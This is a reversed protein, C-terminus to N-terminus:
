HAAALRLRALREAGEVLRRQMRTFQGGTEEVFRDLAARAPRPMPLFQCHLLTGEWSQEVAVIAAPLAPVLGADHITLEVCDEFALACTAKLLAGEGSLDILTAAVTVASRPDSVSAQIWLPYREGRRRDLTSFSRSPMTPM